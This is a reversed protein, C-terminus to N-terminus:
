PADVAVAPHGSYGDPWPKARFFDQQNKIGETTLEVTERTLKTILKSLANARYFLAREKIFAPQVTKKGDPPTGNPVTGGGAHHVHYLNGM